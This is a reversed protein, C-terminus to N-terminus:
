RNIQSDLESGWLMRARHFDRPSSGYYGVRFDLEMNPYRTVDKRECLRQISLTGFESKDTIYVCDKNLADSSMAVTNHASFILRANGPNTEPCRFMWIIEVLVAGHLHKDLDDIAIVGGKKLTENLLTFLWVIKRTGSSVENMYFSSNHHHDVYYIKLQGTNGCKNIDNISDDFCKLFYLIRKHFDKQLECRKSLNSESGVM